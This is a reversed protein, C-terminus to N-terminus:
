KKHEINVINLLEGYENFYYEPNLTEIKKGSSSNVWQGDIYM